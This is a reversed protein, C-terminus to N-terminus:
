PLQEVLPTLFTSAGLSNLVNTRDNNSGSYSVMGNMNVDQTFYGSQPSLFTSAGLLNLISTRDNSSGSYSVLSNANANGSWMTMVSGRARQANSGYTVMLPDTLDISTPIQAFAYTQGTMVGLHSRHRVVLYYADDPVNFFKVASNGDLDVVDGDRQVLAARRSIVTAPATKDRLELLVWDVIADNGTVALVSVDISESGGHNFPANGYPHSLPIVNQVRLDDNMILTGTNYAGDLLVSANVMVFQESAVCACNNDIVSYPTLPDGDDCPMGPEPGGACVDSGNCVGDGDDDYCHIRYSVGCTVDALSIRYSGADLNAITFTNTVPTSLGGAPVSFTAVATGYLYRVAMSFSGEGVGAHEASVTASWPGGPHSFIYWDDDTQFGLHGTQEANELNIPTAAGNSNNPEVDDAFVPPTVTWSVRYSAGCVNSILNLYYNVGTASCNFSFSTSAPTGSAGVAANWSALTAGASLSIRAAITEIVSTGAHEAEITVHLIGNTPVNIHYYDNNEGGGFNLQGTMQTAEPLVIASQVSGNSEVDNAFVPEDMTYRWRYSTGCTIGTFQLDYVATSTRCPISLVTDQPIGNAGVVINWTQITSGATTLLKVQLSGPTSGAHEAEVEINMVGNAPPELSYMDLDTTNFAIQGEYWTDHAETSGSQTNSNNPELDMGFVPASMTYKWRYSTGCAYSILRVVYDTTSGRCPISFISTEPIGNAGIPITWFQITSGAPTSIRLEMSDAVAGTHEAQVEFTLVGNTPPVINYVDSTINGYFELHGETFTDHAVSTGPSSNNPEVDNAFLPPTLTYSIRYSTGCISSSVRIYYPLTNGLCSRSVTTSLPDSNAGVPATWTQLVAGTSVYLEVTVVGNNETGTHEAEISVNIVGDSSLDARYHDTNDGFYFNLHGDATQTEPLIIAQSVQNNPEMDAGFVPPTVSYSVRYSTGCISSSVKLYYAGGNGRCLSNLATSIPIGAAGVPVTWSQLTPGASWYLQVTLIGNTEVGEHEAEVNLNLVGNGSLDLRYHDTNDGFSFNLHGEATQTEPLIISQSVDNNPEVDQTFEPPTVSYSFRYSTGCINSSVRLYYLSTNGRCLSNLTTSIPVADAGIPVTWSQLVPGASWYLEVTMIANTEVGAHEAELHLNLIGNGSLALRYHDTNDQGPFNLQGDSTQNEPLIIAQSTSNNPEIDNTYVAPTITYKLKYSAGCVSSSLRLDYNAQGGICTRDLITTLPVSNAGIPFTWTHQTTGTTTLLAVTMVGPTTGTHEAQLEVNVRGNFQPAIRYIDYTSEGDFGIQGETYTDVALLTGPQSNNPEVDAAFHPPAMTYRWRYSVGCTVDSFRLDYDTINSRCPVSVLTTQPTGNAGVVLDWTQITGGSTNLLTMDLSGPIDGIHEAQVEIHMVGNTAPVLNYVDDDSQNDFGIQGEYWTSDAETSGGYAQNPEVDNAFLPASMTYKWRYSVGCTVDSFRLDYDTTSSRCPISFITDVPIGDAGATITWSEIATGTTTFLTVNMAGPTSGHHEAEIEINMVGNHAPVINYYDDDTQDDFGIQGDYWTSDAVPNGGASNNPVTDNAFLAPTMTYKWKYSVGCTSTSFRLDYDTTNSRCSISLMTSAPSNSAGVDVNWTQIIAGTTSYLTLEMTSAATGFHEAQIELNMVGNFPPMVNYNDSNNEGHFQLHGETYSDHAVPTGPLSNNPEVDNAFVPQSISYTISYFTCYTNGPNDIAVTYTGIGLCPFTLDSAIPQKNAGAPVLYTGITSGTPDILRITVDINVPGSNAICAELQLVGHVTSSIGLHDTSNNANLCAGMSGNLAVGETMPDSQAPVDNPESESSSACICSTSPDNITINSGNDLSMTDPDSSVVRIRYGSGPSTGAPITALITGGGTGNLSGIAVPSNFSGSSNSLQATFTNGNNFSGDVTYPINLQEGACFPSGPVAGINVSPPIGVGFRALFAAQNTTTNQHGNFAIGSASATTGVIYVVEGVSTASGRARDISSGGYYTGWLRTGGADFSALFGDGQGGLTSQHGEYAISQVSTTVGAMYVNGDADASCSFGEDEQYYGYYTGWQRIGSSNFKVLFADNSLGEQYAPIEAGHFSQHSGSTAIDSYSTTTGTLFVNEGDSACGWGEDSTSGGYYTGWARSGSSNFKVLFADRTGGFSNQHGGSAIATVSETWGAIFVNGMQDVVCGTGHENGSGGYYTGWSRTGGSNFKVLFADTGGGLANQHGGSAIGSSSVTYGSLFVNGNVDTACQAISENDSGGYYTAWQRSGAADFKVLFADDAGGITNQHGGSAIGSSSATYGSLFVNGSPDFACGWGVENAGGGYYSAWLRVGNPDFVVLFADSNGGGFSVQHGGAAINSGSDTWGALAVNGNLDTATAVGEEFGGGGYYTAWVLEPDIVLEQTPDHDELKFRLVDDHLEFSTSIEMGDQLSVPRGEIFRGLRNGFVLEGNHEIFLEEHHKLRMRIQDPDAGPHVVFDYKMGKVTTYVVWDIGPYIDHYTVKSYSRVDLADHNYYQTYDESMGETSIRANPNAGELVMDMRYTELRVEEGSGMQRASPRDIREHTRAELSNQAYHTRSFQYAIGNELLFIQTNNESLRYRVYPAAAGDTSRVQGKNEEFGATRHTPDAFDSPGSPTAAMGIASFILM